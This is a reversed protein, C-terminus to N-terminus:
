VFATVSGLPAQSRIGSSGITIRKETHEMWIAPVSTATLHPLHIRQLCQDGICELGLYHGSNMRSPHTILMCIVEFIGFGFEGDALSHRALSPTRHRHRLGFQAPILLLTSQQRQAICEIAETTEITRTLNNECCDLFCVNSFARENRMQKWSKLASLVASSYTSYLKRWDPILFWGEALLPLAGLRLPKTCRITPFCDKLIRSQAEIPVTSHAAPYARSNNRLGCRIDRENSLQHLTEVMSNFLETRSIRLNLPKPGTHEFLQLALAFTKRLSRADATRKPNMLYSHRTRFTRVGGHGLDPGSVARFGCNALRIQERFYTYCNALLDDIRRGSRIEVYCPGGTWRPCFVPVNGLPASSPRAVDIRQAM